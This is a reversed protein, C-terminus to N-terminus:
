TLSLHSTEVKSYLSDFQKSSYYYFFFFYITGYLFYSGGRIMYFILIFFISLNIINKSNFNKFMFIGLILIGLLGFESYVRTLLSYADYKNQGYKEFDSQYLNDYSQSHTGIGTGWLRSPANQAVWLNTLLAYSSLNLREYDYPTGTWLGNWSDIFKIVPGSSLDSSQINPLTIWYFMTILGVFIIVSKKWFSKIQTFFKHLLIIGTVAYAASSASLLIVILLLVKNVIYKYTKKNSYMYYVFAPILLMALYGPEGVVSTIRLFDAEYVSNWKEGMRYLFRFIDIRCFIYVVFQLIGFIAVFSAIRLYKCFLAELYLQNCTFFVSYGIIFMSLIVLQQWSKVVSYDLYTITIGSIGLIGLLLLLLIFPLKWKQSFVLPLIALFLMGLEVFHFAFIGCAVVWQSWSCSLPCQAFTIEDEAKKKTETIKRDYKCM